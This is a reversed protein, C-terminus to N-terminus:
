RPKEERRRALRASGEALVALLAVGGSFEIIKVGTGLAGMSVVLTTAGAPPHALRTWLMVATTLGLSLGMACTRAPPFDGHLFASPTELGFLLLSLYGAALGIAHGGIINRFKAAPASPTAFCIFASAGLPPMVLPSELFWAIWAIIVISLAAQLSIWLFARPSQTM